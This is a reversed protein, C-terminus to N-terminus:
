TTAVVAVAIASGAAAAFTAVVVAEGYTVRVLPSAATRTVSTPDAVTSADAAPRHRSLTARQGRSAYLWARTTPRSSGAPTTPM